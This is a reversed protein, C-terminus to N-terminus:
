CDSDWTRTRNIAERVRDMVAETKNSLKVAV